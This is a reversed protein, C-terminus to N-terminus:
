SERCGGAWVELRIKEDLLTFNDVNVALSPLPTANNRFMFILASHTASVPRKEPQAGAPLFTAWLAVM